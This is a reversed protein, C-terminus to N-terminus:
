QRWGSGGNISGPPATAYCEGFILDYDGDKGSLRLQREFCKAVQGNSSGSPVYSRHVM